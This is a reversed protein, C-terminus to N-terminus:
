ILFFLGETREKYGDLIRMAGARQMRREMIKQSWGLGALREEWGALREAWRLGSCAVFGRTPGHLSVDPRGNLRRPTGRLMGTGLRFVGRFAGFIRTLEICVRMQVDANRGGGM